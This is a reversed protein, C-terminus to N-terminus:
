EENAMMDHIITRPYRMLTDIQCRYCVAHSRDKASLTASMAGFPYATSRAVTRWSIRTLGDPQRRVLSFRVTDSDTGESCDFTSPDQAQM